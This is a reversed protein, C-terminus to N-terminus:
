IRPEEVWVALQPVSIKDGHTDTFELIGNLGFIPRERTTWTRHGTVLAIYYVPPKSVTAERTTMPKSATAERTTTMAEEELDASGSYRVVQRRHSPM